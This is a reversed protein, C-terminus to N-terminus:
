KEGEKIKEDIIAHHNRCLIMIGEPLKGTRKWRRIERNQQNKDERTGVHHIELMRMRTIECQKGDDHIWMCQGSMARIFERRLRAMRQATKSVM